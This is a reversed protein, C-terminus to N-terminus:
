VCTMATCDNTCCDENAECPSGPPECDSPWPATAMAPRAALTLVLPTIYASKKGVEVLFGRRTPKSAAGARHHRDEPADPRGTKTENRENM